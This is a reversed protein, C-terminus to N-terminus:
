GGGMTSPQDRFDALTKKPDKLAREFWSLHEVLTIEHQTHMFRRVDIHYRWALVLELDAHIIPRIHSLVSTSEPM